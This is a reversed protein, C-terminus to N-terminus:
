AMRPIGLIGSRDGRVSDPADRFAQGIVGPATFPQRIGDESRQQQSISAMVSAVLGEPPYVKPVSSLDAFLRKLDDFEARAAPDAALQRELERTEESTAEGDLVAHMLETLPTIKM